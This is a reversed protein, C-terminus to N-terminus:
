NIHSLAKESLDSNNKQRKLTIMKIGFSIKIVSDIVAFLLFPISVLFIGIISNLSTLVGIVLMLKGQSFYFGLFHIGIIIFICLWLLRLNEFGITLGCLTCLIITVVVSINDMRDQFKSNKGYALKNNVFPLGFILFYGIFFGVGMIFPQIYLEGGTIAALIIILGIYILWVGVTRQTNYERKFNKTHSM